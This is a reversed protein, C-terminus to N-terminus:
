NRSPFVGQLAIQMTVTQYPSQTEWDQTGGTYGTSGLVQVDLAPVPIAGMRGAPQTLAGAYISVGPPFEDFYADDPDHSDPGGASTKMHIQGAGTQTNIGVGHSHAPMQPPTITSTPWGGREGIVHYSLGPGQGTHVPARGRFDPLAYTTRGDGGYFTGILAFLAQNQSIAQIQGACFAWSRVAFNCGYMTIQSIFPEAM